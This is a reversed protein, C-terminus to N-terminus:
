VGLVWDMSKKGVTDRLATVILHRTINAEMLGNLGGMQIDHMLLAFASKSLRLEFEERESLPDLRPIEKAVYEIYAERHKRYRSELKTRRPKRGVRHRLRGDVKESAIVGQAKCKLM